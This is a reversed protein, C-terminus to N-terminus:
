SNICGTNHGRSWSRSVRTCELENLGVDRDQDRSRFFTKVVVSPGLSEVSALTERAFTLYNPSFGTTEHLFARCAAMVYPFQLDWDRQHESIVRGMMANLTGHFRGAVFNTQPHYFSIRQKNIDLFRCIEQMLQGNLEKANDTLLTVPTGLRCFIQEVLVRAVTKAEKNRISFAEAWKSFGDVCTLIYKSKRPTRPHPGTIDLHCMKMVIGTIMAQLLGTRPLRGRHYRCCNDCQRCYREVDRRWGLCYGRKQVQDLTSRFARHGGTMGQYCQVIFATRKIASVVLHLVSTQGHYRKAKRYLVGDIVVLNDWKGWLVKTAESEALMEEPCPQNNQAIRWRLIPGIDVDQHQLEAM